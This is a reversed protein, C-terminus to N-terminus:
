ARPAPRGTRSAQDVKARLENADKRVRALGRALVVVYALVAIWIFAYAAAVFQGAPLEERVAGEVKVFEQARAVAPALAAVLAACAM